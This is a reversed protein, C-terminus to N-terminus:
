VKVHFDNYKPEMYDGWHKRSIVQVPIDHVVQRNTLEGASQFTLFTMCNKFNQTKGFGNRCYYM